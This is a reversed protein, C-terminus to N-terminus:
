NFMEEMNDFMNAAGSTAVSAMELTIEAIEAQEESSLERTSLEQEIKAADQALSAMKVLNGTKGAEVIEKCLNRYDKILGSNSKSCATLTVSGLIAFAAFLMLLKKKM